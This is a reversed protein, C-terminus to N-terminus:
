LAFFQEIWSRKEGRISRNVGEVLKSYHKPSSPPATMKESLTVQGKIRDITLARAAAVSRANITPSMSLFELVQSFQINPRLRDQPWTRAIQQLPASYVIRSM